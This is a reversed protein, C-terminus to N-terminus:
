LLPAFLRMFSEILRGAIPRKRWAPYLVDQCNHLDRMFTEKMKAAFNEQYIFANIEFNHEFSRFDFNSSGICTLNDDILLLKSHLFGNAYLHVKVGSQLMQDIYSLSAMQASKTDSHKPIMLRVDIGGLAAMQLAQNLAETPLFYPTQIYIRKKANSICHIFAQMLTRWQSTPGNMVIQMKMDSTTKAESYYEPGKILTNSVAYWDLLFAAQLGHVGPGTIRFHTDRWPGLKNGEVYRDAINMGGMYATKGDIVVIKRHNRYNVKSTLIPFVVKLFPHVEIGTKRMQEFFRNKTSWSGVDDYIVRIKIGELSKEILAQRIKHGTKDDNFIYYQIHIHNRANRIDELLTNIKEKGNTFVSIESGKFIASYNSNNLLHALSTYDPPIEKINHPQEYIKTQKLFRKYVRRTIIRLHRHERGFFYYFILGVGPIFLLVIVWPITKLPNRNELLVLSVLGIITICYLIVFISGILTSIELSANM